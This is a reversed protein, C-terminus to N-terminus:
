PRSRLQDLKIPASRPASALAQNVQLLTTGHEILLESWRQALEALVATRQHQWRLLFDQRRPHWPLWQWALFSDNPKFGSAELNQRLSDAAHKAQADPAASWMLGYYIRYGDGLFQQEMFPRLFLATESDPRLHCGVLCDANNKDETLASHWPLTHETILQDLRQQSARWFDNNLQRRLRDLHEATVLALPLNEAQSFFDLVAQQENM